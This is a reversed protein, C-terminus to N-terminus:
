NNSKKLLEIERQIYVIAKELDEIEKDKFKKGARCLYRGATFLYARKDLGWAEAVKFYEYTTDGGYHQPHNVMDTPQQKVESNQNSKLLKDINDYVYSWYDRETSWLFGFNISDKVSRPINNALSSDFKDKAKSCYPEILQDYFDFYIAKIEEATM